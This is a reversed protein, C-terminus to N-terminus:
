MVNARARFTTLAAKPGFAVNCLAELIARKRIPRLKSLNCLAARFPIHRITREFQQAAVTSDALAYQFVLIKPRDDCVIALRGIANNL